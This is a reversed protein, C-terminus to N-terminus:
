LFPVLSSKARHEHDANAYSNVFCVATSEVGETKMTNVISKVDEDQLENLVEGNYLIRENVEYRLRRPVYPQPRQWRINWLGQESYRRLQGFEVVDRHGKTVLVATKAGNREIVANTAITTGHVIMRVDRLDLKMDVLGQVFALGSMKRQESNSVTGYHKDAM